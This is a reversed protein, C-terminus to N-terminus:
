LMILCPQFVEDGRRLGRILEPSPDLALTKDTAMPERKRPFSSGM